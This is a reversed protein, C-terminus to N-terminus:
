TRTKGSDRSEGAKEVNRRQQSGRKWRGALCQPKGSNSIKIRKKSRANEKSAVDLHGDRQRLDRGQIESGRILQISPM